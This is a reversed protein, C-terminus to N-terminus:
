WLRLSPGLLRSLHSEPCSNPLNKLHQVATEQDLSTDGTTTVVITEAPEQVVLFGIQNVQQSRIQSTISNPVEEKTEERAEGRMVSGAAAAAEEEETTTKDSQRWWFLKTDTM